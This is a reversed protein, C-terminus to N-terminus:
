EDEHSERLLRLSRGAIEPSKEIPGNSFPNELECTDLVNRWSRNHPTPPLTYAVGDHYSNLLILFTDDILPKGMEDVSGLTEGNFLVAISRIWGANWEEETMEHGDSGFWAIDKVISNRISRDQYFNRRRLNPHKSRLEILKSVFELLDEHEAARKWDYWSLENDQCYANNNGFQTRAIEDGGCIMPVGQSLLLTALFNRTQM